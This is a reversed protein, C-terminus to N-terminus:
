KMVTATLEVSIKRNGGPDAARSVVMMKGSELTVAVRENLQARGGTKEGDEDRPLYELTLSLLISNDPYVVPHADVNLTVNRREVAAFAGDSTGAASANSRVSGVQRDAVIMTVVKKVPDASGTQDTIAVEISVNRRKVEAAAPAPEPKAAPKPKEQAVLAITMVGVILCTTLVRKVM